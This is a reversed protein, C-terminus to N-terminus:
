TLRKTVRAQEQSKQRWEIVRKKDNGGLQGRWIWDARNGYGIIRSIDLWVKALPTGKIIQYRLSYATVCNDCYKWDWKGTTKPPFITRTEFSFKYHSCIPVRAQPFPAAHRTTMTKQNFLLTWRLRYEFAKKIASPRSAEHFPQCWPDGLMMPNIPTKDCGIITLKPGSGEPTHITPNYRDPGLLAELSFQLNHRECVLIKGHLFCSRSPRGDVFLPRALARPHFKYSPHLKRCAACVVYRARQAIDPVDRELFVMKYFWIRSRKTISTPRESVPLCIKKLARSAQRLCDITAWGLCESEDLLKQLVLTQLESPLRILLPTSTQKGESMSPLHQMTCTLQSPM